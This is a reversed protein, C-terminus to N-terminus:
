STKKKYYSRWKNEGITKLEESNSGQLISEKDGVVFKMQLEKFNWLIDGLTSLWQVGLVMDYSELPLLLMDAEYERGHMKWRFMKCVRKCKLENGNAVAVKVMPMPETLCGLKGGVEENLFNHTSGSDVLIHLLRRGVTGVVRMTQFSRTGLLANLSIQPPPIEDLEEEAAVEQDEEIAEVEILFAQRRSCKHGPVFKEECWFRLNKARREDM